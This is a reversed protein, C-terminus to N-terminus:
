GSAGDATAVRNRGASKAFYLARDAAAVLEPTRSAHRPWEALGISITVRLRQGDHEVEMAEIAERVREALEAADEVSTRAFLLIVEDGGYLGARGASGLASRIAAGMAAVVARGAGHGHRANVERLGDLDTMGVVLPSRGRLLENEIAALIADGRELGTLEDQHVRHHVRSFFRAEVGDGATVLLLVGGIRLRDGLALRASQVRHENVWVGNASGLDEVVIGGGAGPCLRAHRRSVEPGPLRLEAEHSRGILLPRDVRVLRGVEWGELVVLVPERSSPGPRELRYRGALTPPGEPRDPPPRRTM